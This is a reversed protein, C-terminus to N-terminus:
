NIKGHAAPESWPTVLQVDREYYRAQHDRGTLGGHRHDRGPRDRHVQGAERVGEM